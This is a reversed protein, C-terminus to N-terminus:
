ANEQPMELFAGRLKCPLCEFCSVVMKFGPALPRPLFSDLKNSLRSVDELFPLEIESGQYGVLDRLVPVLRDRLDVLGNIEEVIICAQHLLVLPVDGRHLM